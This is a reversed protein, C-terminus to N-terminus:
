QIFTETPAFQEIKWVVLQREESIHSKHYYGIYYNQGAVFDVELDAATEIQWDEGTISCYTTDISARGNITHIGPEILFGQASVVRPEGDIRNIAVAALCDEPLSHGSIIRAMEYEEVGDDRGDGSEDESQANALQFALLLVLLYLKKLVQTL